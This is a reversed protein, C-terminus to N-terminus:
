EVDARVTFMLRQNQPDNTNVFVQRDVPGKVPMIFPRYIVSVTAKGGPKVVGRWSSSAHMSFEPSKVGDIIVQGATCDCSSSVKFLELPKEGKNEIVFDAQKQEKVKMKGLDFDLSQVFAKPREEDNASYVQGSTSQETKQGSQSFFIIGALVALTVGGVVFLMLRDIGLGSAKM